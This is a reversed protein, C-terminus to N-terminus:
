VIKNKGKIMIIHYGFKTMVPTDTFVPKDLVGVPVTFEAEQFSRVIFVRTMWGWNDGQRSKDEGYQTNVDNFKMGSKLNEM